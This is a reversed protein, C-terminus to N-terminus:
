TSVKASSSYRNIKGTATESFKDLFRFEKPTEYKTLHKSAESLIDRQFNIDIPSGEFIVAIQQGLKEDPLGTVFFRNNIGLADFIKEFATEVKEPSIKVGGSNIVNDIRGIWRFKKETLLEVLDNTIIEEKLHSVSICLCGREDLRLRINELAEFCDQADLGNLKQLAIHSITETMGYTAYIACSSKQIKNKLSNSVAAGGIIACRVKNFKEPSQNLIAELQYPVLAAFDVSQSVNSIPNASPEVAIVNMDALLSRVLMMQGAIYKTDLCVLATDSAKLQLAQITMQASAEMAERSITIEKPTGTSGSTTIKFENQGSLWATCFRLTSKEFESEGSSIAKMEEISFTKGNLSLSFM